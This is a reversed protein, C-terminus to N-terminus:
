FLSEFLNQTRADLKEYNRIEYRQGDVSYVQWRGPAVEHVSDRVGRLYFTANGRQTEVEWRWMSAEQKLSVIRLINPTFYTRDLEQSLVTRSAEDLADPERLIGVEKGSADFIGVYDSPNSLPFARRLRAQLVCRDGEIECRPPGCDVVRTLRVRAAELYRVESSV